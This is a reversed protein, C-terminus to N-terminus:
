GFLQDLSTMCEFNEEAAERRTLHAFGHADLSSPRDPSPSQFQSHDASGADTGHPRARQPVGHREFNSSAQEGQPALLGTQNQYSPNIRSVRLVILSSSPISNNLIRAIHYSDVEPNATRGAHLPRRRM